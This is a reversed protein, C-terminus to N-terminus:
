EDDSRLAQISDIRGSIRHQQYPEIFSFYTESDTEFTHEQVDYWDNGLMVGTVNLTTINM